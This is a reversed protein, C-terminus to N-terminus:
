TFGLLVLYFWYFKTFGLLVLYFGTFSALAIPYPRISLVCRLFVRSYQAGGGGGQDDESRKSNIVRIIM